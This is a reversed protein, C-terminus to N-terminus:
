TVIWPSVVTVFNKATFPGLPVYEWGQIDRASVDNMLCYGFIHNWAEEIKVPEGLNNNKGIVTVMELEFDMKVSKGFSPTKSPAIPGKQGSPRPLSHPSVVISSARGHYGVPLWM